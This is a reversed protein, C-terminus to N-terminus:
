ARELLLFHEYASLWKLMVDIADVSIYKMFLHLCLFKFDSISQYQNPSRPVLSSLYKDYLKQICTKILM